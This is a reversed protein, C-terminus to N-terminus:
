NEALDKRMYCFYPQDNNLNWLHISGGQCKLRFPCDACIKHDIWSRDRYTKFKNNWIEVFNDHLINGQYFSPHNNPCGTINGDCLISAINIGSRCFFPQDRVQRDFNYPFWGECSTSIKLGKKRYKGRNEAIWQLMEWTQNYSLLLDPNNHARGLPFIRFLRWYEIKYELLIEAIDDLQNINKPYICTVVDKVPIEAKSVLDLAKTVRDFATPSNRLYNHAHETGDLSLTLSYIKYKLLEDLIASNLSVGNTVMGWRRNQRHIHSIVTVVDPYVLPEGGTLVFVLQDSFNESIYTIIKLWSATTLQPTNIESKCDSGCHLCSLNCQRTLELFVYNLNHQNLEIKKYLQFAASRIANLM